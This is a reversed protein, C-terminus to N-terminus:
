DKVRPIQYSKIGIKSNNKSSKTYLGRLNTPNIFLGRLNQYKYIPGHRKKKIDKMDEFDINKALIPLWWSVQTSNKYLHYNQGLM